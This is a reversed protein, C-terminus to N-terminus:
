KKRNKEEITLQNSVLKLYKKIRKFMKLCTSKIEDRELRKGNKEAYSIKIKNNSNKYRENPLETNKKKRISKDGNREQETENRKKTTDNKTKPKYIRYTTKREIRAYQNSYTIQKIKNSIKALM